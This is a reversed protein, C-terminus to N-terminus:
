QVVGAMDEADHVVGNSQDCQDVGSEGDKRDDHVGEADQVVGVTDKELFPVPVGVQDVGSGGDKRDDYGGDEEPQHVRERNVGDAERNVGVERGDQVHGHVGDLVRVRDGEDERVGSGFDKKDDPVRVGEDERVGKGVDKKDECVGPVGEDDDNGVGSAGANFAMKEDGIPETRGLADEEM